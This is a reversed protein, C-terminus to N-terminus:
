VLDQVNFVHSIGLYTPLDVKYANIGYKELVKCPGVRKKQLKTPVGKQLRSKNLHVMFYDGVIFQIDKRREDVKAKLKKTSDQIIKKM